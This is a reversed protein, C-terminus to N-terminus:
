VPGREKKEPIGFNDNKIGMGFEDKIAQDDSISL